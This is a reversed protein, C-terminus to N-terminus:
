REALSQEELLKLCAENALQDAKENGLNGSHGRTWQFQVNGHERVLNVLKKWLDQNVVPRGGSSIWNNREWKKYWRNRFGNVLYASDSVIILEKVDLFRDIAEHAAQLEMRQNTTHLVAGSDHINLDECWWAWGGAQKRCSGDTYVIM